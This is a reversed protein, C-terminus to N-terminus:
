LKELTSIIDGKVEKVGFKLALVYYELSKMHEGEEASIHGLLLCAPAVKYQNKICVNLLKKANEYQKLDFFLNSLNYIADAIGFNIALNYYFIAENYRHYEKYCVSAYNNYANIFGKNISREIHEQFKSFDKKRYYILALINNSRGDDISELLDIKEKEDEILNAYAFKCDNDDDKMGKLLYEKAKEKDNAENALRYYLKTCSCDGIIKDRLLVRACHYVDKIKRLYKKAKIKDVGLGFDERFFIGVCYAAFTSTDKHVDIFHLFDNNIVINLTKSLSEEMEKNSTFIHLRGFELPDHKYFFIDEIDKGVYIVSFYDDRLYTFVEQSTKAIRFKQINDLSHCDKLVPNDEIIYQKIISNM